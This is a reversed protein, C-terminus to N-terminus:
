CRGTRAKSADIFRPSAILILSFRDDISRSACSTKSRFSDAADSSWYGDVRDDDKVKTANGNSLGFPRLSFALASSGTRM